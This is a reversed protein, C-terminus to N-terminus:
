TSLYPDKIYSAANMSTRTLHQYGPNATKPNLERRCFNLVGRMSCVRFGSGPVRFRAQALEVDKEDLKQLVDRLATMPPVPDADEGTKQVKAM